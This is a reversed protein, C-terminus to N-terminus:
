DPLNSYGETSMVLWFNYSNYGRHRVTGDVGFGWKTRQTPSTKSPHRSPTVTKLLINQRSSLINTKMVCLNETSVITLGGRRIIDSFLDRDLFSMEQDKM